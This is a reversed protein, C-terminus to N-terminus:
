IWNYGLRMEFGWNWILQNMRWKLSGPDTGMFCENQHLGISITWTICTKKNKIKDIM